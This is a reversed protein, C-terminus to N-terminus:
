DIHRFAPAVVMANASFRGHRDWWWWGATTMCVAIAIVWGYSRPRQVQPVVYAVPRDTQARNPKINMDLLGM